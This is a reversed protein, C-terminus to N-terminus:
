PEEPEGGPVSVDKLPGQHDRHRERHRKLQRSLREAAQDIATRVDRAEGHAHVPPSRDVTAHADVEWRNKEDTLTVEVRSVRAEYRAVRDFQERALQEIHEPLSGHRATVVLDM